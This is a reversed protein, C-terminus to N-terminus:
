EERPERAAGAGALPPLTLPTAERVLGHHDIAILTLPRRPSGPSRSWRITAGTADSWPVSTWREGDGLRIEAVGDADSVAWPAVAVRVSRPEAGASVTVGAPDWAPADTNGWAFSVAVPGAVLEEVPDISQLVAGGRVTVSDFRYLGTWEDGEAVDVTETGNPALAFAPGEVAAIRWTGKVVREPTEVRVWHGVFYAPIPDVRNTVVVAGGSGLQAVGTGLSPLDTVGGSIGGNDVVLEGYTSDQALLLVTGAGGPRNQAHGAASLSGLLTSGAELVDYEITIAGGGGTGLDCCAAGGTAEISGTGALASTTIWVSGAAGGRNAAQGDARVEGDVQVRDAVIRIVGGGRGSSGGGGGPEQPRYVSGFTEGASGGNVGGQGLHSGGNNSSAAGHGPYTSGPAFGLGSADIAGGAEVVLEGVELYLSEPRTVDSTPHHTLVAGAAIRLSRAEIRDTRVTGSAIMQEGAARVPDDSELTVGGTMTVDDFRYVGQWLDGEALGLDADLTLTVGDPAVALIRASGKFATTAGDYVEVWHGVFYAPVTTPRDTALVAGGSGVQAVGAGLAPLVTIGSTGANDVRLDGYLEGPGKVLVTGAGGPQNQPTTAASLSDLLTSGAELLAYEVAIAGGGGTGLNCCAGGGRAEISGTGAVASTTIWVSGGAGGRNASGGNARIEGDVQVRDAVIRVVGGGPGSSGGGGGPEQPRYVSGFTEGVAGSSVGGQGLHSGGNNSGSAGHGPYTSGPAFGLGSADIAGGADVVLEGVELKLSEPRSPDTTLHHTLVAGAAIRLSGAEIRDTRVTGSAIMQEGAARVPDDSELTVGGTMTVDDFRYVGQWRDGEALGLDADLTLTVGDPAVAAVRAAGKFATTAGDYVEVWHGVFYAPVTASRDTALVTGASGAQAVGAGLAPLVTIGSTGANDVRLDGYLESPGKVLVTGAGGTQNQPTTATSLSDLLTSGAELSAYEVAIAGGGGTGLNCCAGGGRAEISGTGAVASTTIWVSGGAGGRNASGGNARIEGDVQVRDAVIRIVGGGRGSSGGGGGPEQPRYVSGFTAGASGGNVGGQGLHSGGNNSGSAGHGPYTSGPAFGLGSADIAGGAEVVLEGVELYLSEPRTVDSTPHHTLVAGAAIRLSGAEIRDTRVTGSAIVQEGSVRVPDESELTVGATMTVDDFRYVGQWRDGPAIGLDSDLILTVGGPAVAAIRASGKLSATAGDYVEVWHGTFYAPVPVARDTVLVSGGSGAQAGGSGLAPLVTLGGAGGNDVLLDGYAAGSGKVYVTGAGGTRNPPTTAASLSELLTSSPELSTFEIAIAGGGGTGLACCAGGGRAEISGTGALASTTIWVSGGAGGRSDTGGDARIVGDVQIRDAVIRVIGGGRGTSGGGGGPEQPRYVSGFTEGAPGSSVGGQGLHSGGNNSSPLAHDPFGAGPVLGLLSAEIVGGEEVVLEGVRLVLSEPDAPDTTPPHTLTAGSAIRLSSAELRNTRVTGSSIVQEGAVRVPDESILVAGEGIEMRDFRYIGQWLDGPQAGLDADLTLTASDAAVVRAAGRAAGTAAEVVEVWHGVFYGPVPEARDTVLVGGGSGALAVGAGLAPLRTRGEPGANVLRLDGYVSTPGLLYVTGAGGSRNDQRSAASANELVTAGTELAGYEVTIAGGGGAGLGCCADGGRAEVAGGGAVTSATVWVSGGGGGRSSSGGDARIAGDVQFRDAEIRLVGGGRSSSGGGGGAEQPRYVSGFTEGAAGSNVGGEGIHSGGNNSGPTGHGPYTTNAAYGKASVDIAGGCAVYVPGSLDLQLPAEPALSALKTVTAGPLVILGGLAVPQDLSVTGSRLVATQGALASWDNTGAGDPALDVTTVAQITIETQSRNNGSDVVEARLRLEGPAAPLVYTATADFAAPAGSAPMARAFPEVADGAFFDVWAVGLDDTAHATLALEYGVPLVAGGTPCAFAVAPPVDDPRPDVTVERTATGVNGTPDTAEASITFTTVDSLPPITWTYSIPTGASTLTEGAVTLSLSEVTVDDTASASVEVVDGATYSPADPTLTLTVVPDETDSVIPIELAATTFSAGLRDTVVATVSLSGLEADAAATVTFSEEVTTGTVTRTQVPETAPGSVQLEITAVGDPDSARVVVTTSEGPKVREGAGPAFALTGAPLPNAAVPVSLAASPTAAGSRDEAVAQLVVPESGDASASVDVEFVLEAATGTVEQRQSATAVPGSAALTVAALGERDAAQVVVSLPYGAPAPTTADPALAVAATPAENPLVTWTAEGEGLRGALDTAEVRYTVAGPPADIPIALTVPGGSVTLPEGPHPSAGGSGDLSWATASSALGLPDDVQWSLEVSSGLLLETGPEPAATFTVAPEEGRLLARAGGALSVQARDNLAPAGPPGLLLDDDAVLRVRGEASISELRALGHFTVPREAALEGAPADVSLRVRFGGSASADALRAQELIPFSGLAAGGEGELVLTEGALDGRVRPVDLVVEGAAEDVAAVKGDGLAPLPTLAAPLGDPGAVVVRGPGAPQGAGDLPELYVTGAGGRREASSPTAAHNHGGAVDLQAALDVEPGLQGYSLAIRGGGGGGSKTPHSGAGGAASIRGTGELRGAVLRVAGGAGGGGSGAAGDAVLDGDLRVVAGAAEIRVVGGGAGGPTENPSTGGSGPLRPERLSDYVTGPAALDPRDWGGSPSGFWGRGGHSGGAWSDAKTEGPLVVSRTPTNGLLGRASMDIRSGHGVTLAEDVALELPHFLIASDFTTIEPATLVSPSVTLVGADLAGGTYVHLAPLRRASGDEQPRLSLTTGDLLFVAGAPDGGDALMPDEPAVATVVGEYVRRAPVAVMRVQELTVTGGGDVLRVEFPLEAGAPVGNPVRWLAQYSGRGPAGTGAVLEGEVYEPALGLAGTDPDRWPGRFRVSVLNGPALAGSADEVADTADVRLLLAAGEGSLVSAYGAPWPAGSWPAVWAGTPATPDPEPAVAFALTREVPNDGLDVVRATAVLPVEATVLDVPVTLTSTRYLGPTGAVPTVALPEPFLDTRDLAVAVTDVATEDDSARLEFYFREGLFFVTEPGGGELKAVLDEVHAPTADDAVPHRASELSGAAGQSDIARAVLYLPAGEAVDLPLQFDFSQPALDAWLGSAPRTVLRDPSDALPAAAGDARLEVSLTLQSGDADDLGAVTARVQSGAYFTGAVPALAEASVAGVSPPTNPLVVMEVEVVNSRNTSTDVAQVWVPFPRPTVGDGSYAGVFDYAFPHAVASFSPAVPRTPDTPDEFYYDVRAVDGGPAEASADDVGSLVPVLRYDVGQVLEGAPAGDPFPVAEVVPASDDFLRYSREYTPMENGYVDALGSVVVRRRLTDGDLSLGGVPRMEVSYGSRTLFLTVPLRVEAGAGDEGYLAVADGVGDGDFREESGSVAENFDFRIARAPDVPLDLSPDTAIVQPGIGDATKFNSGVNGSATLPRGIRDRVGGPGGAVTLSYTTFNAYPSSPTFRVAQFGQPDVFSTWTGAAAAGDASAVRFYPSTAQGTPLVAGALPESFVIEVTATRSVGELGPPPVISVIRPPSADLVVGPIENDLGDPGVLTGSVTGLQDGNDDRATLVYGGTPLVEFRYGGDEGTVVVQTKGKSDRIEVLIGPAPVLAAGAGLRDDAVPQYVVGHAAVAPALQVVLEVVEDDYTLAGSATGGTGTAPSTASATLSGAPVAAFSVRGDAGTVSPFTAGPARLTVDAGAVTAGAGDVVTVGVAGKPHLVLQFPDFASGDGDIPAPGLVDALHVSAARREGALEQASLTASRSVLLDPFLYGDTGAEPEARTFDYGTQVLRVSFLGSAPDLPLVGTTLKEYLRVSVDAVPELVMVVDAVPSTETLAAEARARRSSTQVAAELDYDGEPIGLFSFRGEEGAASQTTTLATLRGGATQGSLQVIGAPVGVTLSADDYLTGRVEGRQDLYVTASLHQGPSSLALGAIRGSRGTPAHFAYISYSGLALADFRVGGDPGSVTWELNSLRVQADPVPGGTAPDRVQVELSGVSTSLAVDPLDLVEWDTAITGRASGTRSVQSSDRAVVTVAGAYVHSVQYRGDADTLFFTGAAAPLRRYPFSSERVSYQAFALPRLEGNVVEVVRGRVSGQAKMQVQLDLMQGGLDVSGFTRGVREVSGVLGAATVSVYGKPVLEFRFHGQADTRQTQALLHETALTVEIDPVPTHGDVDVVQGAVTAADEFLVEHHRAQGAFDITDTITQVGHFPNYAIIEYAGVPLTLELDGNPDTTTEIYSGKLKIQWSGEHFWTPKYYIPTLIGTSTATTTHVTVVGSGVMRLTVFPRHGGYVVRTDLETFYGVQGPELGDGVNAVLHATGVSVDDFSFSGDPRTTTSVPYLRVTAGPLPRGLPDLVVGDIGGSMRELVIRQAEIVPETLDLIPPLLSAGQLGRSSDIAQVQYQPEELGQVPVGEIRYRGTADTYAFVGPGSIFAAAGEVPLDTSSVPDHYVVTGTVTRTAGDPLRLIADHTEGAALTFSAVVSSRSVEWAAAQLTVQGAPVQDFRFRGFADTTAGDVGHGNNYATVFAGEVPDGTTFRVVRGTVAGLAPPARPIELRVDVTSGPTEVGVTAYVRRGDRDSGTLTIPGVPVGGVRFSGDPAVSTQRQEQFLTSTAVVKGDPVPTGDDQYVLTGTVAGRGLLAINVHALRNQLRIRSGVEQVDAPELEPDDGAPVTARLLFGSKVKPDWHPEEVFDFVFRGDAGTTVTGALELIEKTGMQTEKRWIRVLKVEAGDVPEGTGRIVRGEVLGGVHLPVTELMPPPVAPGVREGWGDVLTSTDLLHQHDLLPGGTSPDLLPSVATAYRVAVVRPDDQVFAATGLTESVTSAPQGGTDLGDFSSRVRFAEAALLSEDPPRNFLYVLGNGHRNPRYVNGLLDPPQENLRFDQASGVIRFPPREIRQESAAAGAPAGTALHYRAFGGQGPSPTAMGADVAVAGGPAVEVRGLDVHRFDRPDADDPLVLVLRGAAIQPSDNRLVIQFVEDPELHGVLALPVEAGGSANQRVPFVEGYPLTRAAGESGAVGALLGPGLATARRIELAPAAGGDPTVMAALWPATYSATEALHDLLDLAGLGRAQQEGRLLKALEVAVAEGKSLSRRLEDIEALPDRNGLQDLALVELSELLPEGLATRHGAQAFDIARREVDSAIVAPLGAPVPGSPAVALSYALGLFRVHARLFDGSSLYPSDLRESFRPLLLTAPSLPIGLEGVGTALRITGQGASSSSQFTTAVVKGTLDAVLRYEVTEAQGPELTDLTRRLPDASSEPHAGTLHEEDLDVTILNQAARSLNTVTVFLSYAEGERVVDPHSFTLNFRADVVEVAAQTRSLVPLPDRGPRDIQGTVDIALAHTGAVLGEVTWAASGQEGPELIRGGTAEVVPVRQGAAVSPESAVVRLVNGSPLRISGGLDSLSVQSGTPAGNAVILRAEFFQNLYSVSGPLVIAGFLPPVFVEDGEERLRPGEPEEQELVFPVINPPRWRRVMRVVDDPLQDLEIRPAQLVQLPEFGNYVIPLEIEVIESGFAFGVAFSFAQFNEEGLTIGRAQLDALSLTRVTASTLVIETVHLLAVPPEAAGLVRGTASEVLRVNELRYEGEQQFGPLVFTGGPLTELPLPEPLEPGRLEARVALGAVRPDGPLVGGCPEEVGGFCTRVRAREGVDITQDADTTEADAYLTLRSGQILLQGSALPGAAFASGAGGVWLVVVTFGLVALL